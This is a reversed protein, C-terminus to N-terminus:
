RSHRRTRLSSPQLSLQDSSNGYTWIINKAQSKEPGVYLYVRPELVARKVLENLAFTTKGDQRHFVAIKFRHPDEHIELQYPKPKYPIQNRDTYCNILSFRSLSLSAPSTLRRINPRFSLAEDLHHDSGGFSIGIMILIIAKTILQRLRQTLLRPILILASIFLGTNDRVERWSLSVSKEGSLFIRGSLITTFLLNLFIPLDEAEIFSVM